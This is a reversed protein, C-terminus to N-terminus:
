QIKKKHGSRQYTDTRTYNNKGATVILAIVPNESLIWDKKCFRYFPQIINYQFIIKWGHNSCPIISISGNSRVFTYGRFVTTIITQAPLNLM